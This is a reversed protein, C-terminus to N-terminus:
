NPVCYGYCATLKANWYLDNCTNIYGIHGNCQIFKHCDGPYPLYRQNTQACLDNCLQCDNEKILNEENVSPHPQLVKRVETVQIKHNNNVCKAVEPNDCRNALANWHLNDPCWQVKALGYTCIYYRRCDNPHPLMVGVLGDCPPWPRIIDEINPSQDEQSQLGEILLFCCIVRLLINM